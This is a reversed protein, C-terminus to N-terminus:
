FDIVRLVRNLFGVTIQGHDGGRASEVYESGDIFIDVSELALHETLAKRVLGDSSEFWGHKVM